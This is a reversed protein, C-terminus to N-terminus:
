GVIDDYLDEWQPNREEILRLKWARKWAKIRKERQIAAEANEHIEFYVLRSVDYEASFGAVAKEKHQWIRGILNSTVGTYLTRNRRNALIDVAFRKDM